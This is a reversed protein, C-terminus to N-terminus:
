KENNKNNKGYNLNIKISEAKLESNSNIYSIKIEKQDESYFNNFVSLINACVDKNNNKNKIIHEEINQPLQKSKELEELTSKDCLTVYMMPTFEPRKSIFGVDKKLTKKYLNNEVIFLELKSLSINPIYKEKAKKCAEEFSDAFISTFVPSDSDSLLYFNYSTKGEKESVSVTEAISAKDIQKAGSCGVLVASLVCILLLVLKKFM